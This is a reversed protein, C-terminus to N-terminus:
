NCALPYCIAYFVNVNRESQQSKDRTSVFIEEDNREISKLPEKPKYLCTFGPKDKALVIREKSCNKVM